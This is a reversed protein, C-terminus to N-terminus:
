KSVQDPSELRYEHKPSFGFLDRMMRPDPEEETTESEMVGLLLVADNAALTRLLSSFTEVIRQGVTEYWANIQPIFLISPQHIRAEKFASSLIAEPPNAPDGYLTALDLNRVFFGELQQLVAGALYKQGMGKPGKILLRPRFVRGREFARMMEEADFGSAEDMEELEAEELATLHKRKSPVTENLKKVLDAFARRLLPEVKKPLPDAVAASQRESSPVIKRMSLLFDKAIVKITSTDVELKKDSKYIQPYSRQVANIIAETCLARLDSGGYGRTKEALDDKFGEELAPEWGRTHINIIARRAERTPLPFYFERDFRGPRRFAPDISDPRNTAGIVVIQGRSDMGDMLSLLTTVISAHIQEQKSSRVPALGDFEDFFIIAPQQKKAEEFLLRLQREAEGVWKSMVDAGKRMFFTVKKNGVSVSSALARALLTKGTGPPGHFLVGRPPPVKWKSYLEPYLLPLMVMEKLKNIHDDLGGVSDFGIDPSVGLPTVDAMDKKTVRGFGMPGSADANHTQPAGVHPTLPTLGPLTGPPRAPTEDDSSDDGMLPAGRADPGFPLARGMHSTGGFPGAMNFLGPLGGRPVGRAAPRAAPRGDDSQEEIRLVDEPLLNYNINSPRARRARSPADFQIEPDTHNRTIRPRKNRKPRGLEEVEAMLEDDDIDDSAESDEGLAESEPSGRKRKSGQGSGAKGGEEESHEAEQEPDYDDESGSRKNKQSRSQSRAQSAPKPAQPKYTLKM